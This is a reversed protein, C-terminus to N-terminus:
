PSDSSWGLKLDHVPADEAPEKTKQIGGVLTSAPQQGAGVGAGSAYRDFLGPKILRTCRLFGLPLGFGCPLRVHKRRTGKDLMREGFLLVAHSQEDAGDAPRVRPLTLIPTPL